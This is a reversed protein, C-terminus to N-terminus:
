RQLNIYEQLFGIGMYKREYKTKCVLYSLKYM